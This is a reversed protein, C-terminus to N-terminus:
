TKLATLADKKGADILPQVIRQDFNLEDFGGKKSSKDQRIKHRWNIKPHAREIAELQDSGIHASKLGNARNYNNYAFTSSRDWQM